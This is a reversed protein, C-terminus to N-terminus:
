YCYEVSCLSFKLFQVKNIKHQGQIRVIISLMQFPEGSRLASVKRSYCKGIKRRVRLVICSPRLTVGRGQGPHELPVPLVSMFKRNSNHIGNRRLKAAMDTTYGNRKEISFESREMENRRGYCRIASGM